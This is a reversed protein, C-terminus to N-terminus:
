SRHNAAAGRKWRLLLLKMMVGVMVSINYGSAAVVHMTGTKVLAFYYEEPLETKVGL